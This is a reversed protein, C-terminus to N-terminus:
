LVQCGFWTTRQIPQIHERRKSLERTQWRWRINVALRNDWVKRSGVTFTVTVGEIM